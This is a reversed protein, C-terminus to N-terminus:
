IVFLGVDAFSAILFAVSLNQFSFFCTQFSRHSMVIFQSFSCPMVFRCFLVLFFFLSGFFVLVGLVLGSGFRGFYKFFLNLVSKM